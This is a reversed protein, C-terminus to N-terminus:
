DGDRGIPEGTNLGMRVLIVAQKPWLEDHSARQAAGAAELTATGSVFAAGLTDDM